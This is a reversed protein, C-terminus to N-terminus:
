DIINIETGDDEFQSRMLFEAVEQWFQVDEPTIAMKEREDGVTGGWAIEGVHRENFDGIMVAYSYADVGRIGALVKLKEAAEFVDRRVDIRAM